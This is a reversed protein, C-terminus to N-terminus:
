GTKIKDGVFHCDIEIHKTRAHHVPNSALAITSANDCMVLIPTPVTLSLDKLLCQLWSIECTNDVIARYEVKTSSRYVM